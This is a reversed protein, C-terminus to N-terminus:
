RKESVLYLVVGSLLTLVGLSSIQLVFNWDFKALAVSWLHLSRSPAFEAWWAAWRLGDQYQSAAFVLAVFVM